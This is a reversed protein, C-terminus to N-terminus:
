KMLKRLWKLHFILYLHIRHSVTVILNYVEDESDHYAELYKHSLAQEVSMRQAPDFNLLKDLM